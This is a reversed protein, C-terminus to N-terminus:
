IILINLFQFLGKKWSFEKKEWIQSFIGWFVNKQVKQFIKKNTILKEQFYDLIFVPIIISIKSGIGYRSFDQNKLKPRFKSDAIILNFSEKFHLIELFFHIILNMKSM